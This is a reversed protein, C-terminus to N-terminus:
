CCTNQNPIRHWFVAESQVSKIADSQIRETRPRKPLQWSRREKLCDLLNVKMMQM